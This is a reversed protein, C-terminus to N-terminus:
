RRRRRPPPLLPLAATSSVSSCCNCRCTGWRQRCPRCAGDRRPRNRGARCGAQDDDELTLFGRLADPGGINSLVCATLCDASRRLRLLLHFSTASCATCGPPHM